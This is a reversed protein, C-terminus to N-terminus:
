QNQTSIINRILIKGYGLQLVGYFVQENQFNILELILHRHKHSYNIM